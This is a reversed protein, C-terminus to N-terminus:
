TTLRWPATRRRQAFSRRCNTLLGRFQVARIRKWSSPPPVSTAPLRRSDADADGRANEGLAVAVGRRDVPTLRRASHRTRQLLTGAHAAHRSLALRLHRQDRRAADALAGASKTHEHLQQAFFREKTFQWRDERRYETEDIDKVWHPAGRLVFEGDTTTVFVNQGFLGSTIPEAGVFRGLNSGRPSRRSSRM